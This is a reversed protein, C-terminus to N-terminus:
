KYRGWKKNAQDTCLDSFHWVIHEHCFSLFSLCSHLDAGSPAGKATLSLKIAKERPSSEVYVSKLDAYLRAVPLGEASKLTQSYNLGVTEFEVSEPVSVNLWDSLESFSAVPIINVYTVESQNASLGSVSYKQILGDLKAFYDAYKQVIQDYHPYNNGQSRKRWNSVLRDHQFQILHSEDDSVFWLRTKAPAPGFSFQVSGTPNLGGFTEYTPPLLHHEEVKPYEAKFLSWVEGSVASTYNPISEFQLGM